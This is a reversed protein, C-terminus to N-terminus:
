KNRWDILNTYAVGICFGSAWWTLGLPNDVVLAIFLNLLGLGLQFLGVMTQHTM